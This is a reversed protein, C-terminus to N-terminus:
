HACCLQQTSDDGGGGNTATLLHYNEIGVLTLLALCVCMLDIGINAGGGGGIHPSARERLSECFTLQIIQRKWWVNM